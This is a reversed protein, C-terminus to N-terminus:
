STATNSIRCTPCTLTKTSLVIQWSFWFAVPLFMLNAFPLYRPLEALGLTWWLYGHFLTGVVWLSIGIFFFLVCRIALLFHHFM